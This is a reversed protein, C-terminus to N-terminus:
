REGTSALWDELDLQKQQENSLPQSPHCRLFFSTKLKGVGHVTVEVSLGLKRTEQESYGLTSLLKLLLEQQGNNNTNM